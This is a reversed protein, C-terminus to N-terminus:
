KAQIMMADEVHKMIKLCAQHCKPLDKGTGCLEHQGILRIRVKGCIKVEKLAGLGKRLVYQGHLGILVMKSAPADKLPFIDLNFTGRKCLTGASLLADRIMEMRGFIKLEPASIHLSLHRITQMLRTPFSLELTNSTTGTSSVLIENSSLVSLSEHYIQWNTALLGCGAIPRKNKFDVQKRLGIWSHSKLLFAYVM